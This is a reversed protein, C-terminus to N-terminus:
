RARPPKAGSAPAQRKNFHRKVAWGGVMAAMFGVPGMRRMVAAAGAGLLAGGPGSIGGPRQALRKGIMAGVIKGIM